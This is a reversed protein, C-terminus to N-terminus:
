NVTLMLHEPSNGLVANEIVEGDKLATLLEAKNLTEVIQSTYFRDPVRGLTAAVQPGKRISVTVDPLIYTKKGMVNMIDLALQRMADKRKKFRDRRKALQDMNSTILKLMDDAEKAGRIAKSLVEEADATAQEASGLLGGLTDEDAPCVPSGNELASRARMWASM